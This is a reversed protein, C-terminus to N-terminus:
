LQEMPQAALYSAANTPMALAKYAVVPVVVLLDTELAHALMLVVM